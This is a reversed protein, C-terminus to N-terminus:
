GHECMSRQRMLAIPNPSRDHAVDVVEPSRRRVVAAEGRDGIFDCESVAADADGLQALDRGCEDACFWLRAVPAPQQPLDLLVLRLALNAVPDNEDRGTLVGIRRVREGQQADAALPLAAAGGLGAIFERRRLCLRM